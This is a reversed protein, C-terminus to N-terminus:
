MLTWKLMSIWENRKEIKQEYYMSEQFSTTAKIKLKDENIENQFREIRDKIQKETKM